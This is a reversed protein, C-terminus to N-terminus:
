QSNPRKAEQAGRKRIGKKGRESRESRAKSAQAVREEEGIGEISLGVSPRQLSLNTKM